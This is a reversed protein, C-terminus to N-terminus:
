LGELYDVLMAIGEDDRVTTGIFPMEENLVNERIENADDVIGSAQLSTIYRFDFGEDAPTEWAAPNHCHACNMALYARGRQALAQTADKYDVMSAELNPDFAEMLGLAQLHSLQNLNSGNREVTRNLNLVTPGLPSMSNNRQHCVMCDNESPIQYQITQSEGNADIWSVGKQLGDLRLVAENQNPNWEYTSANWRDDAKILLRTEILEKGLSTDREDIYYFFTKVLISGNPFYLSGDANKALSTGEPVKVLRQKHAYDTFLVSSLELPVFGTNPILDKPDGQFIQYHSVSDAFSVTRPFNFDPIQVGGGDNNGDCAGLILALALGYFTVKMNM